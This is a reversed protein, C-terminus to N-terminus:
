PVNGGDLLFFPALGRATRSLQRSSAWPYWERLVAEVDHLWRSRFPWRLADPWAEILAAIRPDSPVPLPATM